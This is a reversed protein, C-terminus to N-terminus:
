QTGDGGLRDLFRRPGETRVGPPLRDILGRDATVVTVSGPDVREIVQEVLAVIRDDASGPADADFLLDVPDGHTNKWRHVEETLRHAAARQDRWWGDPRSGYVNNGDIVWHV